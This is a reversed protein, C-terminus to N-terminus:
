DHWIPKKEVIPGFWFQRIFKMNDENDEIKFYSNKSMSNYTNKTTDKIVIYDCERYITITEVEKIDSIQIESKFGFFLGKRYLKNVEKNYYILCCVKNLLILCLIFLTSFIIFPICFLILLIADFNLIYYILEYLIIAACIFLVILIISFTITMRKSVFVKNKNM